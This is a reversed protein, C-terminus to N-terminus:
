DLYGDNLEPNAKEAGEIPAFDSLVESAGKKVYVVHEYHASNSGDRTVVTWGDELYSIERGGLNIMPEICIVLGEKLKRGKGRRGYNPIQPDEHLDRGLGHGVLERVVGYGRERETYQQIAFSIDGIRRGAVACEIGKYLSAKTDKMLELTDADVNGIAFTYASDGHFGNLIVGLDVSVIDGDKLKYDNPIGHVVAENVSICAANPFGQYDKFSPIANHSIIYEEALRDIELLSMGPKLELAVEALTASVLLASKRMLEIESESKYLIHM